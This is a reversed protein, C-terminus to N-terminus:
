QIKKVDVTSVKSFLGVQVDAIVYIAKYSWEDFVRNAALATVDM